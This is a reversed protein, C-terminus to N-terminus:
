KPLQKCKELCYKKQFSNFGKYKRCEQNDGKIYAICSFRKMPSDKIKNCEATDLNKVAKLFFMDDKESQTKYLNEDQTILAICDSFGNCFTTDQTRFAEIFRKCKLKDYKMCEVCRNVFQPTTKEGELIALLFTILSKSKLVKPNIKHFSLIKKIILPEDFFSMCVAYQKLDEFDIEETYREEMQEISFNKICDQCCDDCNQQAFVFNNFCFYVLLMSLFFLKKIKM